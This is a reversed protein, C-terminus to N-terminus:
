GERGEEKKLKGEKGEKKGICNNNKREKWVLVKRMQSINSEKKKKKEQIECIFIFSTSKRFCVQKFSKM